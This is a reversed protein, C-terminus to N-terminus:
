PTLFKEIGKFAKRVPMWMRIIFGVAALVAVVFVTIEGVTLSSDYDPM